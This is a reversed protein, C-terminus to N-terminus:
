SFMQITTHSGGLQLSVEYTGSIPGTNDPPYWVTQEAYYPEELLADYTVALTVTITKATWSVTLPGVPQNNFILGFTASTNGASYIPDWGLAGSFISQGSPGISLSFPTTENFQAVDVGTLPLSIDATASGITEIVFYGLAEYGSTGKWTDTFTLESAAHVINSAACLSATLTLWHIHSPGIKVDLLIGHIALSVSSSVQRTNCNGLKPV